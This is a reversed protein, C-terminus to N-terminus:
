ATKQHFLDSRKYDGRRFMRIAEAVMYLTLVLLISATVLLLYKGGASFELIKYVLATGSTLLMFCAPILSYLVPKRVYLLYASIVMLAMAAVLQNATAFLPWLITWSDTFGLIYAPVIALLSALLRKRFLPFRRGLLEHTLLRTLRVSTDLTTMIFTNLMIVGFVTGLLIGTVPEILRGYGAGFASVAGNELQHQFILEPAVGPTGAWYLGASVALMAFVALLGETVMGGFGIPLAHTENQLQKATTGSSVIAHFGSIAGCAVLICLMPWIPGHVESFVDTLLPANLDHRTLFIGAIGLAMGAFLVFTSIYDRPQLLVWVPLVSAILGYLMLITFWFCLAKDILLDTGAFSLVWEGSVPAPLPLRLGLYLSGILLALAVVTALWQPQRWRYIMFGLLMAIPILSFAPLVVEPTNIFAKAALVAFVAIVLVLAIWVFSLFIKQAPRSVTLATIDPISRGDLRTSVMLALYDHVAGLFVAGLLIWILTGGWGFVAVALVPGVIPGAGAISSFHHGFLLLPKSPYFDVGDNKTVAPVPRGADPQVVKAAIRRGYFRYALFFWLVAFILITLSNM